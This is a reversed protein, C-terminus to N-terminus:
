RLPTDRGKAHTFLAEGGQASDSASVREPVRTERGFLDFRKKQSIEGALSEDSLVVDRGHHRVRRPQARYGAGTELASAGRPPEGHALPHQGNGGTLHIEGEDCPHLLHRRRLRVLVAEMRAAAPSTATSARTPEVNGARKPSM